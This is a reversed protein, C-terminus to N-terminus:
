KLAVEVKQGDYDLSKDAKPDFSFGAAKDKSVLVVKFTRKKLMGEFKGSRDGITLTASADDWHIPIESYAGKEYGYTLGDDEYLTFDGDAGDYVYLTIPDQPKEAIYQLEPGFPIISGARIFLPIADYPASADQSGPNVQRGTWFDYWLADPLYVPRDREKYRTVPAVLFAKGFMYEDTLERAKSDDPFDMVLPWMFTEGNKTVAWATSYLYPFLRYRLRDFKLEAQYAPSGEGLTWMERPRLEGHVRLLPCFTSFEFWRANLERWEEEDEPRPKKNAFKWQMTYGGTDTTWYPIGSLSFNLGAPIQKALATWTSTIDGSWIASATRQSGAFGSRTLIFVRQNPAATRQGEYIGTSNELPYANLVKAGPGLATPNLHAEQGELTPPSPMLDPETADMWWADIGKQFLASDIQSWFAERAKPNFADYFTYPFGLWDKVGEDLLPKYLFGHDLMAKFNATGPYYKGWVSIMVHAHKDHLAKLWGVPDPFRDPDFRHSGWSDKRWYMWDQVINDFPIGRKRFGDVVDLSQQATEYRQRSQWLGFAWAPMLPAQGTLTRYGAVVKDLQPGYVFYYDIGDGVESWLSTDNPNKHPDVTVPKGSSYDVTIKNVFYPIKETNSDIMVPTKVEPFKSSEEMPSFRDPTKWLFRLTSGQETTWEIKIPYQKGAELHVKVQDDAALWKQRWHNVVLNGDLWVKIGGNSTCRFQYDGTVPALLSGEWRTAPPHDNWNKGHFDVSIDTNTSVPASGDMPGVSLGGTHGNKDVLNEAPIPVFPMLDGFRTYSPNDWFIGYGLSSVLFPVAVNTNHQWLDLDFGKLDMTGIQEQGLGYFSENEHPAWQQHIQFTKEGQITTPEMERNNEALIPNGSKDFFSVKGNSQDISVTMKGSHLNWGTDTPEFLWQVKSDPKGIVDLTKHKFFKRNKAFQVHVISDSFFRVNLFGDPLHLVVGDTEKQLADTTKPIGPGAAFLVLLFFFFLLRSFNKLM